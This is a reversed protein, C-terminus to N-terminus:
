VRKQSQQNKSGKRKKRIFLYVAAISLILEIAFSWHLIFNLWWPHYLAPVHALAYPQDIWPAFWWIDGVLTDCILHLIAQASFALGLIGWTRWHNKLFLTAAGFFLCLSCWLIPYHTWYLHHHTSRGDVLYFYLMDIDPAISGLIMACMLGYLHTGKQTIWSGSLYGVPIHAIFM